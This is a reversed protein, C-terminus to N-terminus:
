FHGAIVFTSNLSFLKLIVQASKEANGLISKLRRLSYFCMYNRLSTSHIAKQKTDNDIIHIMIIEFNDYFTFFTAMDFIPLILIKLAIKIRINM